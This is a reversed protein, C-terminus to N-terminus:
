LSYFHITKGNHNNCNYYYFANLLRDWDAASCYEDNQYLKVALCNIPTCKSPTAVITDGNLWLKKAQQKTIKKM